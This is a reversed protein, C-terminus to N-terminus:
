YIAEFITKCDPLPTTLELKDLIIDIDIDGYFNSVIHLVQGIPNALDYTNLVHIFTNWDIENKFNLIYERIDCFKSLNYSNSEIKKVEYLTDKYFHYCLQILEYTFDLTYFSKGSNLHAKTRHNLLESTSIPPIYKGGEFITTNIDINVKMFPTVAFKSFRIYAHEQHSNLSWYVIDKRSAKVIEGSLDIYGQVFGYQELICNVAGVDTKNVLIDIDSFKRYVCDNLRYLSEIFSFGKLVCYKINYQDFKHTIHELIETYEKYLINNFYLLASIDFGLKNSIAEIQKQEVIHKLFLFHLKNKYITEFLNHSIDNSEIYSSFAEKEENSLTVKSVLKLFDIM